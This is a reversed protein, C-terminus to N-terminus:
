SRDRNSAPRGRSSRTLRDNRWAVLPNIASHYLGPAVGYLWAAMGAIAPISVVSRNRSVATLIRRACRDPQMGRIPALNPAEAQSTALATSQGLRTEVFAPCVATVRVSFRAAEARLSASFGVVAHKTAAYAALDPVPVLGAVSAVNVVHGSRQACMVPYVVMTGYVVGDLNVGRTARWQDRSVTQFPGSPAIGANNFFLDIRGHERLVAQVLAQLSEHRTVDTTVASAVAGARRLEAELEASRDEDLDAVVVRARRAALEICLARGIGSAGGTIVAVRDEYATRATAPGRASM